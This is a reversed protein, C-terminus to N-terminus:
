RSVSLTRAYGCCPGLDIAKFGNQRGSWNIRGSALIAYQLEDSNVSSHLNCRYFLMERGYIQQGAGFFAIILPDVIQRLHGIDGRKLAYQVVLFLEIEQLMRCMSRFENDEHRAGELANLTSAQLRIGELIKGSLAPSLRAVIDDMDGILEPVNASTTGIM